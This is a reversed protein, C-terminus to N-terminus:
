VWTRLGAPRQLAIGSLCLVFIILNVGFAIRRSKPGPTAVLWTTLLIAPCLCFFSLVHDDARVLARNWVLIIESVLFLVFFLARLPRRQICCSALVFILALMTLIAYTFKILSAIAFFSGALVDLGFHGLSNRFLFAVMCSIALFYLTDPAGDAWVFVFVFFF